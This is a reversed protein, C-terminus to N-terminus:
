REPLELIEPQILNRDADEGIAILSVLIDDTDFGRSLQQFHQLKGHVDKYTVTIYTPMGATAQIKGKMEQDIPLEAKGVKGDDKLKDSM